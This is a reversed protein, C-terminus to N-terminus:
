KILTIAENAVLRIYDREGNSGYCAGYSMPSGDDWFEDTVPMEWNVIKNLLVLLQANSKRYDTLMASITVIEADISSTNFNDDCNLEIARNEHLTKSREIWKKEFENKMVLRNKKGSINVGFTKM